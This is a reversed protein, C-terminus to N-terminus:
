LRCRGLELTHVASPPGAPATAPSAEFARLEARLPERLTPDVAYFTIEPTGRDLWSGVCTWDAPVADFPEFVAAVRVDMAAATRRMFAADYSGSLTAQMTERSGLGVQDLIRQDTFFTPAGLSELLVRGPQPHARLFGALTLDIRNTTRALDMASEYQEWTRGGLSAVAAAVAIAAAVQLWRSAAIAARAQWGTLAVAMVGLAILHASYVDTPPTVAMIGATSCLFIFLLALIARQQADRDRRVALWVVGSVALGALVPLGPTDLLNRVPIRVWGTATSLLPTGGSMAQLMVPSPFAPWGHFVAFAAYALPPVAACAASLAAVRWGRSVVVVILVPVVVFVADYRTAMAFAAALAVAADLRTSPLPETFTRLALTALVLTAAVHLTYEMGILALWPLSAGLAIMSLLLAQWRKGVGFRDFALACIALLTVASLLNLVLPTMIRVGVIRDVIALLVPWLLSTSAGSFEYRTVGWHAREALHRAIAMHTYADDVAYVFRGGGAAIYHSWWAALALATTGCAM